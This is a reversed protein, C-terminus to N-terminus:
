GVSHVAQYGIYRTIGLKQRPAASHLNKLLALSNQIGLDVNAKLADILEKMSTIHIMAGFRNIHNKHIPGELVKRALPIENRETFVSAFYFELQM